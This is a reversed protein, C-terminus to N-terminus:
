SDIPLQAEASIAWDWCHLVLDARDNSIMDFTTTIRDMTKSDMADLGRFGAFATLFDGFDTRTMGIAKGFIALPEGGLDSFIRFATEPRIRGAYVFEAILGEREHRNAQDILRQIQSRTAAVPPRVLSLAVQLADDFANLAQGQGLLDDLASHMMRRDVAFRTLIESRAEPPVWWFMLQALRINLEARALLLPQFEPESASRWVLVELSRNSIEAAPNALVRCIADTPGAEILADVIAVPLSRRESIALRHEDSEERIIQVLDGASLGMNNRLIPAAIEFEDRALALTLEPPGEPLQAIREAIRCRSVVDLRTVATAVVADILGREQVTLRGPPLIALDSMRRLLQDREHTDSLSDGEAASMAQNSGTAM